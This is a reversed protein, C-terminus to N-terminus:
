PNDILTRARCTPAILFHRIPLCFVKFMDLTNVADSRTSQTGATQGVRCRIDFRLTAGDPLM